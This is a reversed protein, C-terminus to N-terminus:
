QAAKKIERITERARRAAFHFIDWRLRRICEDKLASHKWHSDHMVNGLNMNTMVVYLESEKALTGLSMEAVLAIYDSKPKGESDNGVYQM